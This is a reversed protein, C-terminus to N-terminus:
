FLHTAIKVLMVAIPLAKVLVTAIGGDGATFMEVAAQIMDAVAELKKILIPKDTKKEKKVIDAATDLQEVAQKALVDDLEGKEKAQLIMEKLDGLLDTFQTPGEAVIGNNTVLDNGAIYTSQISGRGINAGAGINGTIIISDGGVSPPPTSDKPPIPLKSQDQMLIEKFIM